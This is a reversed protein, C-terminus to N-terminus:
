TFDTSGGNTTIRFNAQTVLSIWIQTKLIYLYSVYSASTSANTRFLVAMPQNTYIRARTAYINNADFHM